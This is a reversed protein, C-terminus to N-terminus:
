NIQINRKQKIKNQKIKNLKTKNQKIKNQKIKNNQKSTQLQTHIIKPNWAMGHDGHDDM